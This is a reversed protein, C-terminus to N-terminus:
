LLRYVEEGDLAAASGLRTGTRAGDLVSQVGARLINDLEDCLAELFQVALRGVVMICHLICMLIHRRGMRLPKAVCGDHQM